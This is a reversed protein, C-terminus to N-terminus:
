EPAPTGMALPHAAILGQLQRLGAVLFTQDSPFSFSLDGHTEGDQFRVIGSVEARGLTGMAIEVLLGDDLTSFCASGLLLRACDDLEAAFCLLDDGRTAIPRTVTISGLTVTVAGVLWDVRFPQDDGLSHGVQDLSLVIRGGRGGIEM